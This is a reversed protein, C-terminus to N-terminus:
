VSQFVEARYFLFLRWNLTGALSLSLWQCSDILCPTLLYFIHIICANFVKEGPRENLMSVFSSFLLKLFVCIVLLYKFYHKVDKAMLSICISVVKPVWRVGNLIFLMFFVVCLLFFTPFSSAYESSIPTHVPMDVIYILTSAGSFVLFLFVMHGLEVM